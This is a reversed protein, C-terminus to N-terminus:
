AEVMVPRGALTVLRVPGYMARLAEELGPAEPSVFALVRGGHLCLLRHAYRLAANVDHSCWLVPTGNQAAQARLSQLLLRRRAFDLASDPEDLALLAPSHVLARALLVLQRQGQSLTCFDRGTWQGAGLTELVELARATRAPGPAELLGLRASFGQLVVELVSLRPPSSQSQALWGIQAARRRPSLAHLAQGNLVCQGAAPVLGCVARLLTSKGAGNPGLVACVQGPAVTFSIDRLVPAGGYGATLGQVWLGNNQM